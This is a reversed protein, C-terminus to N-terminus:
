LRRALELVHGDQLHRQVLLRDLVAHTRLVERETAEKIADGAEKEAAAAEAEAERRRRRSRSRQKKRSRDKKRQRSRRREAPAEESASNPGREQRPTRGRAPSQSPTTSPRSKVPTVDVPPAMVAPRERSLSVSPHRGRGAEATGEARPDRSRSREEVAQTGRGGPHWTWVGERDMERKMKAWAKGALTQPHLKSGDLVAVEAKAKGCQYCDTRSAFLLIECLKCAWDGDRWATVKKGKGKKGKGKGQDGMAFSKLPWGQLPALRRSM